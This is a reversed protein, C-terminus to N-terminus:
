TLILILIGKPPVDPLDTPFVNLFERVVPVFDMPPPEVSTDWIFDFHSLCGRDVLRKTRIFSIVKRPYSGNAYTWEVRQFGQIVFTKTKAFSYELIAHHLSIWDMFFIVDFDVMGLIILHTWSDYGVFSVVYYRYVQEVVLSDGLLTSVHIPVHMCEFMVDFNVAFYTSVYSFTSGPDFLISVPQHCMSVSCTIVVNSTKVKPRGLFAYCDGDRCGVTQTSDRGGGQPATAGRSSTRGGRGSQGTGTSRIPPM